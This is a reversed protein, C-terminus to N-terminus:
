ALMVDCCVFYLTVEQHSSRKIPDSSVATLATAAQAQHSVPRLCLVYPGLCSLPVLPHSRFPVARHDLGAVNDKGAAGLFSLFAFVVRARGFNTLQHALPADNAVSRSSSSSQLKSREMTASTNARASPKPPHTPRPEALESSSPCGHIWM